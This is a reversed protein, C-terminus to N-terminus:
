WHQRSRRLALMDSLERVPEQYRAIMIRDRDDLDNFIQKARLVNEVQVAPDARESQEATIEPADLEISLQTKRHDIRTAVM